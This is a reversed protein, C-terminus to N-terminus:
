NDEAERDYGILEKAKAVLDPLEPSDEKHHEAFGDAAFMPIVAWHGTEFDGMSLICITKQGASTNTRYAGVRCDDGEAWQVQDHLMAVIATENLKAKIHDGVERGLLEAMGETDNAKFPGVIKLEMDDPDVGMKECLEAKLKEPDMLKEPKEPKPEEGMSMKLRKMMDDFM